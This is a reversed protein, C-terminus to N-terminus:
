AYIKEYLKLTRAGSPKEGFPRYGMKEYLHIARANDSFVDLWIRKAHFNERCYEEM